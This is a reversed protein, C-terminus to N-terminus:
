EIEQREKWLSYVVSHSRTSGKELNWYGKKEKIGNVLQKLRRGRREAVKRSRGIQGEIIYKLFCNRHLIHGIWNAKWIKISHM